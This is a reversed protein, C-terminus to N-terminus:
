HHMNLIQVLSTINLCETHGIFQSKPFYRFDKFLNLYKSEFLFAAYLSCEIEIHQIGQFRKYQNYRKKSNSIHTIGIKIFHTHDIYIARNYNSCTPCIAKMHIHHTPSMMFQGHVPCIIKIKTHSDIYDAVSYDYMDKHIDKAKEFFLQKSNFKQLKAMRDVGCLKCGKGALHDSASQKFIGHSHCIIELKTHM